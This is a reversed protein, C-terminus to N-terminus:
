HVQQKMLFLSMQGKIYHEQLVLEKDKGGSIMIGREGVIHNYKDSCSEIFNSIQAQKAAQMVRYLDIDKKKTGLAINEAITTDAM